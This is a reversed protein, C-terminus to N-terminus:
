RRGRFASALAQAMIRNAIGGRMVREIGDKTNNWGIRRLARAQRSGDAQGHVFQAYSADNSLTANGNGARRVKWRRGLTESAQVLRSQGTRRSQYFGGRGRVYYAGPGPQNAGTAAPYPAIENQIAQAIGLSAPQLAAQFNTNLLRKVRDLGQIEVSM